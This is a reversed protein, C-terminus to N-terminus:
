WVADAGQKLALREFCLKEDTQRETIRGEFIVGGNPKDAGVRGKARLGVGGIVYLYHGATCSSHWKRAFNM